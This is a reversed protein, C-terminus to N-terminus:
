NPTREATPPPAFVTVIQGARLVDDTQVILAAPRHESLILIEGDPPVPLGPPGYLVWLDGDNRCIPMVRLQIHRNGVRMFVTHPGRRAPDFVSGLKPPDGSMAASIDALRQEARRGLWTLGVIVVVCTTWMAWHGLPRYGRILADVAILGLLALSTLSLVPGVAPNRWWRGREGM